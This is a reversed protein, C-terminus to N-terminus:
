ASWTRGGRIKVGASATNKYLAAAQAVGNGYMRELRAMKQEIAPTADESMLLLVAALACISLHFQVALSTSDLPVSSDSSLSAPFPYHRLVVTKAEQPEPWLRLTKSAESPDILFHSPVGEEDAWDEGAKRQLDHQSIPVLEKGDYTVWDEWMFTSPLSYTATGAVTSFSYDTYIVGSALAWQEQARDLVRDYQASDYRTLNKDGCFDAVQTRM